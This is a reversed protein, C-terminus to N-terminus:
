DFFINELTINPFLPLLMEKIQMKESDKFAVNGNEKNYYSQPSINLREAMEKQTLGLMTRYGKIKNKAMNRLEKRLKVFCMKFMYNRFTLM